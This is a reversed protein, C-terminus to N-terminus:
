LAGGLAGRRRAGAQTRRASNGREGSRPPQASKGTSTRVAPPWPEDRLLRGPQVVDRIDPLWVAADRNRRQPASSGRTPNTDPSKSVGRMPRAFEPRRMTASYRATPEAM